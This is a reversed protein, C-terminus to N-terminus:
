PLLVVKGFAEAAALARLAAVLARLDDESVPGTSQGQHDYYWTAM